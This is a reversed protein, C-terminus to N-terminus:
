PTEQLSNAPALKGDDDARVLARLDSGDSNVTYIEPPINEDQNGPVYLAIRSGDPSWAGVRWAKDLRSGLEVRRVNSGDRRVIFFHSDSGVLLESGDSSWSVHSVKWNMGQSELVQTLDTSDFRVTYVGVPEGEEDAMVFALFGGDPSWAPLVPTWFSMFIRQLHPLYTSVPGAVRTWESGDARIVYLFSGQYSALLALYKGDPSWLPVQGVAVHYTKEKLTPTITAAGQELDSGDAEIAVYFESEERLAPTTLAVGQRVDSGDVAMTYIEGWGFPGSASSSFAIRKGDPSWVPYDDFSDNRTLRQKRTGDLNIVAIEYGYHNERKPDVHPGEPRFECSTYVVRTGDPSVDFYIGYPFNFRPFRKEIPYRPDADVLTRLQTGERDVVQITGAYDFLLYTGDPTWHIVQEFVYQSNGELM